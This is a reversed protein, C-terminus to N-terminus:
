WLTGTGFVVEFDEKETAPLAKGHIVQHFGITRFQTVLDDEQTSWLPKARIIVSGNPYEPHEEFAAPERDQPPEILVCAPVHQTSTQALTVFDGRLNLNETPAVVRFTCPRPFDLITPILIRAEGYGLRRYAPKPAGNETPPPSNHIPTTIPSAPTTTSSVKGGTPGVSTGSVPRGPRKAASTVVRSKQATQAPIPSGAPNRTEVVARPPKDHSRLWFGVIAAAAVIVAAIVVALKLWWWKHKPKVPDAYALVVLPADEVERAYELRLAFYICVFGIVLEGIFAQATMFFGLYRALSMTTEVRGVWDVILVGGHLCM